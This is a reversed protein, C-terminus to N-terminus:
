VTCYFPLASLLPPVSGNSQRVLSDLSRELVSPLLRAPHGMRVVRVAVRAGAGAAGGVGRSGAGAAAGGAAAATPDSAERALLKVLWDGGERAAADTEAATLPTPKAVTAYTKSLREVINDAAVNSPSCALVRLGRAVYQAILEVVATTKGTGPPGHILAISDSRLAVDIARLQPDNLPVSPRWMVRAPELRPAEGKFLANVVSRAHADSDDFARELQTIGAAYASYTAENSTKFVHYLAGEALDEAPADDFAIAISDPKVSYVVGSVYGTGGGSAGTGSGASAGSAAASAGAGASAGSTVSPAAPAASALRLNAVDRPTFQHPPLPLKRSSVFTVISRGYLGTQIDEILMKTLCLGESELDKPSRSGLRSLDEAREEEKEAALLTRLNSAYRALSFDDSEVQVKRAGTAGSM